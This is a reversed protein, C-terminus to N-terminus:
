NLLCILNLVKNEMLKKYILDTFNAPPAFFGFYGPNNLLGIILSFNEENQETFVTRSYNLVHCDTRQSFFPTIEYFNLWLLGM